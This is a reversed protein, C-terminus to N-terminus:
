YNKPLHLPYFCGLFNKPTDIFNLYFPKTLLYAVRSGSEGNLPEQVSTAPHTVVTIVSGPNTIVHAAHADLDTHVTLHVLAAQALHIEVHAVLVLAVQALAATTMVNIKQM